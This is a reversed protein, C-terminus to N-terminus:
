RFDATFFKIIDLLLTFISESVFNGFIEFFFMIRYSIKKLIVCEGDKSRVSINKCFIQNAFETGDTRGKHDKYTLIM